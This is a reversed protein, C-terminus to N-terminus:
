QVEINLKNYIEVEPDEAQLIDVYDQGSFIHRSKEVVVFDEDVTDYGKEIIVDMVKTIGNAKQRVVRVRDINPVPISNQLLKM